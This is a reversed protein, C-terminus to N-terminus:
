ALDRLVYMWPKGFYSTDISENKPPLWVKESLAIGQSSMATISGILGAYGINAFPFSGPETSHYITILPNQNIPMDSNWDLARLQALKSGETASGWTGVISCSAKTLEPYLNMRTLNTFSIGSADAIGRLEENYRLPTFILTALYDLDLGIYLVELIIDVLFPRL